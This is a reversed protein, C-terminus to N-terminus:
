QAINFCDNGSEGHRHNYFLDSEAEAAAGEALQNLRADGDGIDAAVSAGVKCADLIGAAHGGFHVVEVTPANGCHVRQKVCGTELTLDGHECRTSDTIRELHDLHQAQTCLSSSNRASKQLCHECAAGFGQDLEDAG